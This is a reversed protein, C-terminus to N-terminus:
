RHRQFKQRAGPAGLADDRDLQQFEEALASALRGHGHEPERAAAAYDLKPMSPFIEGLAQWQAPADIALICGSGTVVNIRARCHRRAAVSPRAM